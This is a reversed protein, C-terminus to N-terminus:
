KRAGCAEYTLSMSMGSGLRKLCSVTGFVWPAQTGAIEASNVLTCVLADQTKKQNTTISQTECSLVLKESAKECAEKEEPENQYKKGKKCDQKVLTLKLTTVDKVTSWEGQWQNKWRTNTESYGWKNDLVSEKTSGEDKLTATGDEFRSLTISSTENYGDAGFRSHRNWDEFSEMTLVPLAKAPVAPASAAVTTPQTATPVAAGPAEEKPTPQAAKSAEVKVPTVPLTVSEVGSVSSSPSCSVCVLFVSFLRKVTVELASILACRISRASSPSRSQAGM